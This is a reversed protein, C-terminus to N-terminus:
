SSCFFASFRWLLLIAVGDSGFPLLPGSVQRSLRVSPVRVANIYAMISAMQDRRYIDRVIALTIVPVACAGIAQVFRIAIVMEITSAQWAATSALVYVIFGAVLTPKRGFRDSLPGMNTPSGCLRVYVHQPNVPGSEPHQEPRSWPRFHRYLLAISVTSLM